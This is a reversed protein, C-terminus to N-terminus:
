IAQGSGFQEDFNFITRVPNRFNLWPSVVTTGSAFHFIFSFNIM